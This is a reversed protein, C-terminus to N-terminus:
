PKWSVEKTVEHPQELGESDQSAVDKEKGECQCETLAEVFKKSAM